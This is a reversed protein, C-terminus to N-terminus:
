GNKKSELEHKVTLVCALDRRTQRIKTVNDLKALKAEMRSQFLEKKLNNAKDGLEDPSLNRLDKAKLRAM